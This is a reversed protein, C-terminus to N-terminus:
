SILHKVLVEQDVKDLYNFDLTIDVGKKFDSRDVDLNQTCTITRKGRVLRIVGSASADTESKDLGVCNLSGASLGTAVNVTIRDEKIRRESTSKPCYADTTADFISGSGSHVIDFSFQIRDRGAVSQRFSDVKIPSGSSFVDKEESPDCIADDAVDVMSELVCIESVVRTHYSYCVDARFIFVTNGPISGGFNFEEVSSSASPFTVFTDIPEIINGESDRQKPSPDDEPNQGTLKEKDEASTIGFDEPLFGILDIKVQEKKLDFEGKNKLSVLVQFPFTGGDTVEGPPNGELFKIELGETGGLFPTTPAGGGGDDGNECGAIFFLLIVSFAILRADRKKRM